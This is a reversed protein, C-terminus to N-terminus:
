SKLDWRRSRHGMADLVRPQIEPRVGLITHFVRPIPFPGLRASYIGCSFPALRAARLLTDAPHARRASIVGDHRALPERMRIIHFLWSGPRALLTPQFDFHAYAWTGVQDHQQFFTALQSHGRFHHLVGTSIYVTAPQDLRFANATEFRCDLRERQALSNAERILAANFDVGVLELDPTPRHAALWRIVYGTGCGIDVCRYPPQIGHMRLSALLAQLLEWMRQGHQFEESLRQMECHVRVLLRDVFQPDLEGCSTVPMREVIQAARRDGAARCQQVVADRQVPLRTLTQYDFDVILDSVELLKLKDVQSDNM